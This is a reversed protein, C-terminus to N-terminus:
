LHKNLMNVVTGGGGLYIKCVCGSAMGHYVASGNLVTVSHSIYDKLFYLNGELIDSVFSICLYLFNSCLKIDLGLIFSTIWFYLHFMVM